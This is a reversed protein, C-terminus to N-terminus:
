TLAQRLFEYQHANAKRGLGTPYGNFAHVGEPYIAVEAENGAIRWRESMFLTDDILPDLTGVTFLARPMDHLRAFLPSIDPDRRQEMTMGPTYSKRFWDIIPGSLVLNRDGWLVQSPTGNMAYAGYVLNAAAITGRIDHRDRLRLLTTVSLHAGASEGGIAFRPPADLLEEGHKLLHLVADECDDQGAPYPHEPALRYGISAAVLGTADALSKLAVDQMDAAGLAWGGGHIHLYIGVASGAPRVVRVPIRGGRGEVSIDRAEELFVPAPFIGKGERRLRRAEPAGIEIITPVTAILAELQVNFARAEEIDEQNVGGATAVDTASM